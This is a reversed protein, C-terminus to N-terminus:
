IQLARCTKYHLRSKTSVVTHICLTLNRRTTGTKKNHIRQMTCLIYYVGATPFTNCCRWRGVVTSYIVSPRYGQTSTSCFAKQTFFQLLEYILAVIAGSGTFQSCYGNESLYCMVLGKVPSATRRRRKNLYM